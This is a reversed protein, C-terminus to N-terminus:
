NDGSEDHQSGGHQSGAHHRSDAHHQSDASTSALDDHGPWIDVLQDDDEDYEEEEGEGEDDSDDDTDVDNDDADSVTVESMTVWESDDESSSDDSWSDVRRSRLQISRLSYQQCAHLEPCTTPNFLFPKQGFNLRLPTPSDVGIVPFIPGHWFLRAVANLLRGDRTYFLLPPASPHALVGCGVTCGPGFTLRRSGTQASIPPGPATSVNSSFLLGDDSHLGVSCTDWGPQKGRLPFGETGLGIAVCWEDMPLMDPGPASTPMELTVEYYYVSAQELVSGGAGDSCRIPMREDSCFGFCQKDEDASRTLRQAFSTRSCKHTWPQTTRVARDAGLNHVPAVVTTDDIVVLDSPGRQLIQPGRGQVLRATIAAERVSSFSNGVRLSALTSASLAHQLVNSWLLQEKSFLRFAKCTQFVLGLQKPPIFELINLICGDSLEPLSCLM